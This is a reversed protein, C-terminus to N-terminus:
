KWARELLSYARKTMWAAVGREELEAIAAELLEAARERSGGLLLVEGLDVDAFALVNGRQLHEPVTDSSALWDRFERIDKEAHELHGSRGSRALDLHRLGRNYVLDARLREESSPVLDLAVNGLRLCEAAVSDRAEGELSNLRQQLLDLLDVIYTYKRERTIAQTLAEARLDGSGWEGCASAYDALVEASMEDAILVRGRELLREAAGYDGCAAASRAKDTLEALTM